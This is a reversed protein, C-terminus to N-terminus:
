KITYGVYQKMKFVAIDDIYDPIITQEKVLDITDKNKDLNYFRAGFVSIFDQLKNLVHIRIITACYNPETVELKM